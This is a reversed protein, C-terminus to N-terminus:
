WPEKGTTRVIENFKKALKSADFIQWIFLVIYGIGLIVIMLVAQIGLGSIDTTSRYYYMSQMSALQLTTYAMISSLIMLVFLVLGGILIIIGKTVKGVYM